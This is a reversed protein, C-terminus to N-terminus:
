WKWRFAYPDRRGLGADMDDRDPLEALHNALETVGPVEDGLQAEERPQAPPFRHSESLFVNRLTQYVHAARPVTGAEAIARLCFRTLASDREFAARLLDKTGEPWWNWAGIPISQTGQVGGEPIEPPWPHAPMDEAGGMDLDERLMHAEPFCGCPHAMAAVVGLGESVAKIRPCELRHFERPEDPRGFRNEGRPRM